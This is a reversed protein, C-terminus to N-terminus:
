LPHKRQLKWSEVADQHSDLPGTMQVDHRIIPKDPNGLSMAEQASDLDQLALIPSRLYAAAPTIPM